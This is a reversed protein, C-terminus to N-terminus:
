IHKGTIVVVKDKLRYAYELLKDDPITTMTHPLTHTQVQCGRIVHFGATGLGTM